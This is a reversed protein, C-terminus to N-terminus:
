SELRIQESTDSQIEFPHEDLYTRVKEPVNKAEKATNSCNGAYDNILHKSECENVVGFGKLVTEKASKNNLIEDIIYDGM